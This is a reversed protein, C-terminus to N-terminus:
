SSSSPEVNQSFSTLALVAQSQNTSPQSLKVSSFRISRRCDKCLGSPMASAFHNSVQQEVMLSSAFGSSVLAAASLGCEALPAFSSVFM